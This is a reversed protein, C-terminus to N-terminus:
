GILKAMVSILNSMYDFTYSLPWFSTFTPMYAFMDHSSPNIASQSCHILHSPHDPLRLLSTRKYTPPTLMKKTTSSTSGFELGLGGSGCARCLPVRIHPDASGKAWVGVQMGANSNCARAEKSTNVEEEEKDERGGGVM